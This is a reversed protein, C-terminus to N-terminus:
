NSFFLDSDQSLFLNYFKSLEKTQDRHNLDDNDRSIIRYFFITRQIYSTFFSLVKSSALSSIIALGWGIKPSQNRDFTRNFSKYIIHLFTQLYFPRPSAHRRIHLSILNWECIWTLFNHIIM